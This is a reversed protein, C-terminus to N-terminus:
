TKPAEPLSPARLMPNRALNRARAVGMTTRIRAKPASNQPRLTGPSGRKGSNPGSAPGRDVESPDFTSVFDNRLSSARHANVSRPAMCTRPICASTHGLRALPARMPLPRPPPPCHLGRITHARAVLRLRAATPLARHLMRHPLPLPTLGRGGSTERTPTGGQAGSGWDMPSGRTMSLVLLGSARM